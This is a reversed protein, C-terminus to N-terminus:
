VDTRSRSANVKRQASANKKRVFGATKLARGMTSPSVNVGHEEAWRACLEARTADPHARVLLELAAHQEPPIQPVRGGAHPQPELGDGRRERSLLRSVSARGVNFLRAIEEYTRNGAVYASVIRQRLDMSLPTVMGVGFMVRLAM